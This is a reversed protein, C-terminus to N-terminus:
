DAAMFKQSFVSEIGAYGFMQKTFNAADLTEINWAAIGLAYIDIRAAQIRSRNYLHTDFREIALIPFDIRCTQRMKRLALPATVSLM